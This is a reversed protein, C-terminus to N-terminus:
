RGAVGRDRRARTPALAARTVGVGVMASGDGLGERRVRRAAAWVPAGLAAPTGPPLVVLPGDGPCWLRAGDPLDVELGVPDESEIWAVLGGMPLPAVARVLPADGLQLAGAASTGGPGSTWVTAPQWRLDAAGAPGRARYRGAELPATLARGWDVSLAEGRDEGAGRGEIVCAGPGREPAAGAAADVAVEGAGDVRLWVTLDAPRAGAGGGTVALAAGAIAGALAGIGGREVLAGRLGGAAGGAARRESPDGREAM